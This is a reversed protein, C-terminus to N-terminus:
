LFYSRCNHHFFHVSIQSSNVTILPGNPLSKRSPRQITIGSFVVSGRVATISLFDTLEVVCRSPDDTEGIIRVPVRVALSKEWHHGCSLLITDGPHALALAAEVSSFTNEALQPAKGSAASSDRVGSEVPLVRKFFCPNKSIQYWRACVLQCSMRDPFPSLFKLISIIIGEPAASYGRELAAAFREQEDIVKPKGYCAQATDENYWFPVNTVHDIYLKWGAGTLRRRRLENSRKQREKLYWIRLSDVDDKTLNTALLEGEALARYEEEEKEREIEDVDWQEDLEQAEAAVSELRQQEGIAFVSLYKDVEIRLKLAFREVPKLAMELSRFDGGVSAQWSAFEAEMDKEESTDTSVAASKAASSISTTGLKGTDAAVVEDDDEEAQIAANDDFEEQEQAVESKLENMACVDEDDEVAAMAAEVEGSKPEDTGVGDTVTNSLGDGLVDKLGKASFLSAEEFNGETMVLYDLHRKQKAKMLINEEVTSACVLRYIHVERTQGIRHARDQAQADMAPNWDSDYFIVTDAGTLNIGLGGSRTSLIFCFLKPDSNFRDMLKQRRDISTSGDLRVYTHAHLNLFVELIDLMKSMQTFILCKHGGHKLDRLLTNLTQLKGSDFQVMKRDPFCITQRIQSSYLISYTELLSIRLSEASPPPRSQPLCSSVLRNKEGMVKPIVFVFKEVMERLENARCLYSKVYNSTSIYELPRHLCRDHKFPGSVDVTCARVVRWTSGFPSRKSRKNSIAFNFEFKRLREIGRSRGLEAFYDAFKSNQVSFPLDLNVDEFFVFQEKTVSLRDREDRTIVDDEFSWLQLIDDSLRMLPSIQMAQVALKSPSYQFSPLMFPSTIPRPEFLDPHNCVQINMNNERDFGSM